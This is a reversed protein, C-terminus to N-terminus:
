LSALLVVAMKPPGRNQCVSISPQALPEAWGALSEVSPSLALWFSTPINNLCSFAVFAHNGEPKGLFGVWLRKVWTYQVPTVEFCGVPIEPKPASNIM